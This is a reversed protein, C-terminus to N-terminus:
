DTKKQDNGEGPFFESRKPFTAFSDALWSLVAAGYRVWRTIKQVGNGKM